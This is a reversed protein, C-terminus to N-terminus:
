APTVGAFAGGRFAEVFLGHDSRAQEGYAHAFSTLDSVFEEIEDGVCATVVEEVSVDITSCGSTRLVLDHESDQDAVCHIKATARGLQAVLDAM